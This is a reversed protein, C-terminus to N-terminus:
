RAPEPFTPLLERHTPDHGIIFRAPLSEVLHSVRDMTEIAKDVNFSGRAVNRDMYQEEFHAVDGSLIVYGTKPLKLLLMVAGATHGPASNIVLVGDGFLDLEGSVTRVVHQSDLWSQFSTTNVYPNSFAGGSAAQVQRWDALGMVLEARSFVDLQGTHDMHHHSLIVTTIDEPTLGITALQSELTAAGSQLAMLPLGADWLIHQGRHRILYCSNTLAITTGEYADDHSFISGDVEGLNGCDLRWLATDTEQAFVSYTSLLYAFLMYPILRM